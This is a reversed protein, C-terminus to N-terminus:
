PSSYGLMVWSLERANTRSYLLVQELIKVEMGNDTFSAFFLIWKSSRPSYKEARLLSAFRFPSLKPHSTRPM